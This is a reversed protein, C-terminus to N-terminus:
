EPAGPESVITRDPGGQGDTNAVTDKEDDDVSAVSIPIGVVDFGRTPPRQRKVWRPRMREAQEPDEDLVIAVIGLALGELIDRLAAPSLGKIPKASIVKSLYRDPLGVLAEINAHSIDLEDRRSRLTALLDPISRVLRPRKM